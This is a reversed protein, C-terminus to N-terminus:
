FIFLSLSLFVKSSSLFSTFYTTILFFTFLHSLLDIPHLHVFAQFNNWMLNLLLELIRLYFLFSDISILRSLTAPAIFFNFFMFCTPRTSDFYFHKLISVFSLFLHTFSLRTVDCRLALIFSTPLRAFSISSGCCCKFSCYIPLIELIELLYWQLSISHYCLRLVTQISIDFVNSLTDLQFYRSLTLLVQYSTVM